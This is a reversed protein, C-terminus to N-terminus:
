VFNASCSALWFCKSMGKQATVKALL